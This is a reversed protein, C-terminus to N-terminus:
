LHLNLLKIGQFGKLGYSKNISAQPKAIFALLLAWFFLHTIQVNYL